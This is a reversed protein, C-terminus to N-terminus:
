GDGQADAQRWHLCAELLQPNSSSSELKVLWGIAQDLVNDPLEPQAQTSM